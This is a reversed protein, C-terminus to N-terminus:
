INDWGELYVGELFECCRARLPHAVGPRSLRTLPMLLLSKKELALVPPYDGPHEGSVLSRSRVPGSSGARIPHCRCAAGRPSWLRPARMSWGHTTTAVAAAAESSRRSRSSIFPGRVFLGPRASRNGPPVAVAKELCTRSLSKVVDVGCRICCTGRGLWDVSYM